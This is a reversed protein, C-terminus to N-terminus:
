RMSAAGDGRLPFRVERAAESLNRAIQEGTILGQAHNCQLSYDFRTDLPFARGKWRRDGDITNARRGEDTSTESNMRPSLRYPPIFAIMGGPTRYLELLSCRRVCRYTQALHARARGTARLTEVFKTMLEREQDGQEISRLLVAAFDHRPDDTM